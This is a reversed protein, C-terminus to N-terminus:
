HRFNFVMCQLILLFFQAMQCFVKEPPPPWEFFKIDKPPWSSFTELLSFEGGTVNYIFPGKIATALLIISELMDYIQFLSFESKVPTSKINLISWTDM